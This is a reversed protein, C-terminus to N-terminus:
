GTGDCVYVIATAPLGSVTLALSESGDTDVQWAREIVDALTEGELYRMALYPM